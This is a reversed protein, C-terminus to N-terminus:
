FSMLLENLFYLLFLNKILTKIDSRDAISRVHQRFWVYNRACNQPSIFFRGTERLHGGDEIDLFCLMSPLSGAHM